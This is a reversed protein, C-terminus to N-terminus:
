NILSYCVNKIDSYHNAFYNSNNRLALKSTKDLKSFKHIIKLFSEHDYADTGFGFGHKEILNKTAPSGFSLIPLSLATLTQLRSPIIPKLNDFNALSVIGADFKGLLTKLNKHSLTNLVEIKDKNVYGHLLSIKRKGHPIITLKIRCNKINQNKIALIIEEVNQNASFNGLYLLKIENSNNTINLPVPLNKLVTEIPNHITMVNTIGSRIKLEKSMLESTTSLTDFSKYCFKMIIQNVKILLSQKKFYGTSILDDPWFDQLWLILHPSKGILKKYILCTLALIGPSYGIFIIKDYFLFRLFLSWLIFSFLLSLYNLILNITNQGRPFILTRFINVDQLKDLKFISFFNYNKYYKGNPYNPIGTLVDVHHEKSLDLAIDQAKFKEPHFYATIILIKM